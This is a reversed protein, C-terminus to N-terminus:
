MRFQFALLWDYEPKKETKGGPCLHIVFLLSIDNFSGPWEPKFNELYNSAIYSTQLLYILFLHALANKM